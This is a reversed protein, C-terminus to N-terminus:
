QVRLKPEKCPIKRFLARWVLIWSLFIPFLGLHLVFTGYFGAFIIACICFREVILCLKEATEEAFFMQALCAMARGGDMPYVPLLNYATHFASCLATRPFWRAAFITILFSAPGALACVLEQHCKLPETHMQMGSCTIQVEHIKIGFLRLAILHCAEHLLISGIAAFLWKMPLLLLLVVLLLYVSSHTRFRTHGM